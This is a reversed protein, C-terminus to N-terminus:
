GKLHKGSFRGACVLDAARNGIGHLLCAPDRSVLHQLFVPDVGSNFGPLAIHWGRNVSGGSRLAFRAWHPQKEPQIAHQPETRGPRTQTRRIRDSLIGASLSGMLVGMITLVGDFANMAFYRRAIEGIEAIENYESVKEVMQRLHNPQKNRNDQM